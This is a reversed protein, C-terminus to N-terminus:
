SSKPNVNIDLEAALEARSYMEELLVQKVQEAIESDLALIDIEFKM